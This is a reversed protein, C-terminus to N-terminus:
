FKLIIKISKEINKISLGAKNCLEDYSGYDHIFDNIALQKAKYNDVGVLSKLCNTYLGDHASLDEITIIKKTKKVSKKILKRDFPKLSNYYIIEISDNYKDEINKVAQIANNLLNGLVALTLNKGKKFIIAKGPKIQKKNFIFNHSHEPVRFYNIKKNRYLSKFLLKFELESAPISITSNKFHSILSIDTYCHHSCGLKSYDFAGGVSVLNIGLKQYGFDLKIQEYAREIIFSSITHVVPNFGIKSLGAAINVISPECIGINFYRGKCSKAFPQFIRHSIDGVLVVLNKDKKGIELMTDAFVQRIKKM